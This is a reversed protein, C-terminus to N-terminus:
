NSTKEKNKQYRGFRPFRVKPLSFGNQFLGVKVGAGVSFGQLTSAPLLTAAITSNSSSSNGFAFRYNAGIYAKINKTLNAEISIGPQVVGYQASYGRNRGFGGGISDNSGGHNGKGGGVFSSRAYSASDARAYGGGIVLPFSIHIASAPKVVYELKLGGFGARLQLPSIGTPSFSRDASHSGTVGFAFRNNVMLMASGGTFSTMANKVQGYQYEPAVYIGWTKPSKIHFLTKITDQAQASFGAVLLMTLIVIGKKM